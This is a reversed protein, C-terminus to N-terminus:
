QFAQLYSATSSEKKFDSFNSKKLADSGLRSKRPCNMYALLLPGLLLMLLGLLLCM